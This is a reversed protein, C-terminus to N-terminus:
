KAVQVLRTELNCEAWFKAKAKAKPLSAPGYIELLSKGNWLQVTYRKAETKTM